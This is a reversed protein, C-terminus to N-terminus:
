GSWCVLVLVGCCWLVLWSLDRCAVAIVVPQSLCWVGDYALVCWGEIGLVEDVRVGVDV